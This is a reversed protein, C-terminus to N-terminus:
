LLDTVPVRGAERLRLDVIRRDVGDNCPSDGLFDQGAELHLSRGVLDLQAGNGRGHPHLLATELKIDLRGRSQSSIQALLTERGLLVIALSALRAAM